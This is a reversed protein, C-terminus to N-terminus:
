IAEKKFPKSFPRHIIVVQKYTNVNLLGRDALWNPGLKEDFTERSAVTTRTKEEVSAIFDETQAGRNAKIGIAIVENERELRKIIVKNELYQSLMTNTIRM